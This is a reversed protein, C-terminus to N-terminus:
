HRILRSLGVSTALGKQGLLIGGSVQVWFRGQASRAPGQERVGAELVTVVLDSNNTFQGAQPAKNYHGPHGLVRATAELEAAM